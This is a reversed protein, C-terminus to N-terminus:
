FCTTVAGTFEKRKNKTSIIGCFFAQWVRCVKKELIIKNSYIGCLYLGVPQAAEQPAQREATVYSRLPSQIRKENAGAFIENKWPFSCEWIVDRLETTFDTDSEARYSSNSCTRFNMIFKQVALKRVSAYFLVCIFCSACRTIQSRRKQPYRTKM